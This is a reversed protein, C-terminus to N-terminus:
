PTLRTARSSRRRNVQRTVPLDHDVESSGRRNAAFGVTGTGWSIQHGVTRNNIAELAATELKEALQHAYQYVHQQKLSTLPPSYLNPLYGTV